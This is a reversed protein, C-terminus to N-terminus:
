DVHELLGHTLLIEIAATVTAELAQSGTDILVKAEAYVPYRKDILDALIAQADGNALLPRHKSRSTRAHLVPLEARLWVSTAHDRITERNKEAMFAGGGTAVVCTPGQLLRKIIKGEADRFAAEGHTSFIDSVSMGAAIEVEADSDFFPAGLRHAIRRGVTTKGAGMLGVLVITKRLRLKPGPIRSRSEFNGNRKSRPAAM